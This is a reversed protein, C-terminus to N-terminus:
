TIAIEKEGAIGKNDSWGVKVKDGPKAGRVKVKVLPDKSVASGLDAVAFEEGNLAFTIKQIFHPPIRLKTKPDLRQGDEMPHDIRVLIETEGNITKTRIKTAM